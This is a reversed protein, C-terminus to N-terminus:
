RLADILANLEHTASDAFKQTLHTYQATSRISGHGLWMQILRLSIGAELLHTAWSHRLTHVTAAKSIGSEELAAKFARELSRQTMPTKALPDVQRHLLAPFLWVPNRHTTWFARLQELTHQPLPVRRDKNGKSQHIHLQMRSSDIDSVRLRTGESVRLGCAYITSLCVRYHPRRVCGLLHRVEEVSLVVPLKKETRPRLLDFITWERKLTFTFLFKIASLAIRCSGQSLQRENRLYLFYARIEEETIQDPSCGYHQALLSVQHLYTKQTNPSLGRLQMDEIMRQRLPTM